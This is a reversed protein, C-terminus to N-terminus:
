LTGTVRVANMRSAAISGKCFQRLVVVRKAFEMPLAGTRNEFNALCESTLTQQKTKNLMFTSFSPNQPGCQLRHKNIRAPKFPSALRHESYM